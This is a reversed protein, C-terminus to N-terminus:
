TRSRSLCHTYASPQEFQFWEIMYTLRAAAPRREITSHSESVWLGVIYRVSLRLGEEGVTANMQFGFLGMNRKM